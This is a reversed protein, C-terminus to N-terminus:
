ILSKLTETLDAPVPSLRRLYDVYKSPLDVFRKGIHPGFYIRELARPKEMYKLMAEYSMADDSEMYAKFAKCICHAELYIRSIAPMSTSDGVVEGTLTKLALPLSAGHKSLEPLSILIRFFDIHKLDFQTHRHLREVIPTGNYTIFVPQNEPTLRSVYEMVTHGAVTTPDLQEATVAYNTETLVVTRKLSLDSRREAALAIPQYIM